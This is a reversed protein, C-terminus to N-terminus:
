GEQRLGLPFGAQAFSGLDFRQPREVQALPRKQAHAQDTQALLLMYQQQGQMM